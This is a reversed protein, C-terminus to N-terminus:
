GTKESFDLEKSTKQLLFAKKFSFIEELKIFFSEIINRTFFILNKTVIYSIFFMIHILIVTRGAVNLWM